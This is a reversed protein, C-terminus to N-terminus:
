FRYQAGVMTLLNHSSPYTYSSGNMVDSWEFGSYGTVSRTVKYTGVSSVVNMDGSCKPSSNDKCGNGSYSNQRWGYYAGALDIKSSLPRKFGTWYVQLIKNYTYANQTLFSLQYGGIEFIPAALPAHPNAYRIHDYGGSITTRGALYKATLSFAENDSITAALSNAPLTTMQAATLTSSFIGDYRRSYAGDASFHHNDWGLNLQKASGYVHDPSFVPNHGKFQTLLGVRYNKIQVAYKLSQDLFVDQVDGGGGVSPIYSILSFAYSTAIPDYKMVDDGPLSSQRGFTLAGRDAFQFGFFAKGNDIRGARPGDTNATQVQKALGNNAIMAQQVNTFRLSVPNFGPELDFFLSVGKGLQENGRLGIISQTLGNDAYHTIQENGNPAIITEFGTGFNSNYPRGDSEALLGVDIVGFLTIGHFTLPSEDSSSSAQKSKDKAPEATADHKVTQAASFGQAHVPTGGFASVIVVLLSTCLLLRSHRM